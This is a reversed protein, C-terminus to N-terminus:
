LSLHPSPPIFFSAYRVFSLSLTLIYVLFIDCCVQSYTIVTVITFIFLHFASPLLQNRFTSYDDFDRRPSKLALLSRKTGSQHDLWETKLVSGRTGSDSVCNVFTWRVCPTQVFLEGSISNEPQHVVHLVLDTSRRGNLKTHLNSSPSPRPAFQSITLSQVSLEEPPQPLTSQPTCSRQIRQAHRSTRSSRSLTTLSRQSSTM